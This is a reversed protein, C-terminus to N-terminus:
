SRNSDLRKYYIQLEKFFRLFSREATTKYRSFNTYLKQHEDTWHWANAPLEWEVEELRKSARKLFWHARATKEVLTIAVLDRPEYLHFWAAVTAEFEAPDEDRLVTKESRCGHKLANLSSTAKGEPTRPGTSKVFIEPHPPSAPNPLNKEPNRNPM